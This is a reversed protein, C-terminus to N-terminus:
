RSDRPEVARERLVEIVELMSQRHRASLDKKLTQAEVEAFMELADDRDIDGQEILQRILAGVVGVLGAIMLRNESAAAVTAELTEKIM